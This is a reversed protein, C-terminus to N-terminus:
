SVAAMQSDGPTSLVRFEVYCGPTRLSEAGEALVVLCDKEGSRGQVPENQKVLQIEEQDNPCCAQREEVYGCRGAEFTRNM